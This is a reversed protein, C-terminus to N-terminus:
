SKWCRTRMCYGRYEWRQEPVPLPHENTATFLTPSRQSYVVYQKSDKDYFILMYWATREKGTEDTLHEWKLLKPYSKENIEIKKDEARIYKWADGSPWNKRELYTLFLTPATHTQYPFLSDSTCFPFICYLRFDGRDKDWVPEIKGRVEQLLAAMETPDTIFTAEYEDQVGERYIRFMEKEETSQPSRRMFLAGHHYGLNEPGGYQEIYLPTMTEIVIKGETQLWQGRDTIRFIQKRAGFPSVPADGWKTWYHYLTILSDSLEYTALQLSLSNSDGWISELETTFCPLTDQERYVRLCFSHLDYDDSTSTLLRYTSNGLQRSEEKVPQDCYDQGRVCLTLCSFLFLFFTYKM